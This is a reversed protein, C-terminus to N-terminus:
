PLPCRICFQRNGIVKEFNYYNNFDDLTDHRHGANMEKTSGATQNGEVWGTEIAEGCTLGVGDTYNFSFRFQCDYKHNRLHAKPILGIMKDVIETLDPFHKKFRDLRNISHQCEIDYSFTILPNAKLERLAM